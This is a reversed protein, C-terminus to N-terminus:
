IKEYKPQDHDPFLMIKKLQLWSFVLMNYFFLSLWPFTKKFLCIFGTAASCHWPLIFALVNEENTPSGKPLMNLCTSVWSPINEQLMTIRRLVTDFGSRGPILNPSSFKRELLFVLGSGQRFCREYQWASTADFHKPKVSLRLNQQRKQLLSSQLPTQM